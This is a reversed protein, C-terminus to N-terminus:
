LLIKLNFIISWPFIKGLWFEKKDDKSLDGQLYISDVDAKFDPDTFLNDGILSYTKPYKIFLFLNAIKGNYNVNEKILNQVAEMVVVEDATELITNPWEINEVDITFNM